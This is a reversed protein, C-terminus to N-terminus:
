QVAYILLGGLILEERDEETQAHQQIRGIISILHLEPSMSHRAAELIHKIDEHDPWGRLLAEIAAARTKPDVANCALSAIRNGIESDGGAIDALARAAARQNDSEEDHIGKWLCEVVEPDQPWNAMASFVGWRRRCPFWSRLKPKVLEKVKTSRLGYLVHQLLRERHPIWSGTEIQEFVDSALEIAIGAPCNFDGFVIESLLLEINYGEVTNVVELKDKVCEM